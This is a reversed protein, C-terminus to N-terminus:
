VSRLCLKIFNAARSPRWLWLFILRRMITTDVRKQLLTLLLYTAAVISLCSISNQQERHENCLRASSM